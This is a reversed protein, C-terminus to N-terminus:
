PTYQWLNASDRFYMHGARDVALLEAGKERLVTVKKTAPDLQLFRGNLTVYIQGSPHVIMSADQWLAYNKTTDKELLKETFLVKQSAPDFIFLTSNAVGWVNRDPGIILSTIAQTNPVPVLEFVKKESQPDWGFLKAQRAKPQIGLGGAISTGGIILKDSYVLSVVSQRAVVEGADLLRDTNPNYVMLHGGLQGYEPVTGIFLTSLEPVGLMAVPRSQGPVQAFQHPNNTAWPKTPDFEYFRAHPYVGFYMKGDLVGIGEAQSIGKFSKEKGAAPDFSAAGGALFGGMWIKGYPGLEISQISIPQPPIKLSLIQTRSTLPNYHLLEAHYTLVCLDNTELWIAAHAGNCRALVQPREHPRDLDFSRLRGDSAYYVKEDDPSKIASKVEETPLEREVQGTKLNYVLTKNRNTIWILLRDGKRDHIVRLSYVAEEGRTRDSLLERKEGTRPNLQILHAHSAVGAYVLGTEDDYAMCRVYEEGPVLPGRGADSFGNKPSYRFVRCGPFTGGFIEGDAGSCVDWIFSEAPLANGLDQLSAAGPTIRFLDGDASSVYVKNDSSVTIARASINGPMPLDAVNEGTQVDYALLHATEGFVATYVLERGSADRVFASGQITTATLQPGLNIFRGPPPEARTNGITIVLASIILFPIRLNKM